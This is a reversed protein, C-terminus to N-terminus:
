GKFDTIEVWICGNNGDFNEIEKGIQGEKRCKEAACQVESGSFLGLGFLGMYRTFGWESWDEVEKRSTYLGKGM